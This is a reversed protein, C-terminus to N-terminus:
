KTRRNFTIKKRASSSYEYVILVRAYFYVIASSTTECGSRRFSWVFFSHRTSEEWRYCGVVWSASIGILLVANLYYSKVKNYIWAGYQVTPLFVRLFLCEHENMQWISTFQLLWLQARITNDHKCICSTINKQLDGVIFAHEHINTCTGHITSSLKRVWKLCTKIM